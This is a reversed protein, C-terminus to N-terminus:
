NTIEINERMIRDRWEIFGGFTDLLDALAVTANYVQNEYMSNGKAGSTGHGSLAESVGSVDRFLKMELDLLDYAGIDGSHSVLQQPAPEGNRPDYPIIGDCASWQKGVDEWSMNSIKQRYPFLLVGKASTSMVHDILTILRNVYKQQDIIDEVFSHIEGDVLPYLKVIFPHQGSALRSHREHLLDGRPSIYRCHWQIDTTKRWKLQPRGSSQRQRNERKLDDAAETTLRSMSGTEPDHCEVTECSELTWVEVVRCRGAPATFFGDSMGGTRMDRYIARLRDATAADGHSFRMVVEALSMDHLMGILETDWGRIDTINNIFFRRPSVNDVWVGRGMPRHENVVRQIACGSILFEELTRCDLENLQNVSYAKRVANDHNVRQQARRDRYRGIVCKVMPRILNNTLPTRGCRSALEEESIARGDNDYITDNWQRGYTFNKYRERRQRLDALKLWARHAAELVERTRTIEM